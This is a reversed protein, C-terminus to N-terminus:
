IRTMGRKQLVVYGGEWAWAVGSEGNSLKIYISQARVRPHQNNNRGATWTGTFQASAAVAAEPSSGPHITYTVSGSDAALLGV